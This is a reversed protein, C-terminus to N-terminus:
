KGYSKAGDLLQDEEPHVLRTQTLLQNFQNVHEEVERNDPVPKRMVVKVIVMRMVVEMEAMVGMRMVVEVIRMLVEM